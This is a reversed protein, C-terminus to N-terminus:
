FRVNFVGNTVNKTGSGNFLVFSFTGSATKATTSFGTLIVRGSGRGAVPGAAPSATWTPTGGVTIFNANTNTPGIEYTGPTLDGTNTGFKGFTIGFLNNGADISDVELYKNNTQSYRAVVNPQNWTVGDILASLTSGNGGSAAGSTGGTPASPGATSNSGSCAAVALISAAMLMRIRV